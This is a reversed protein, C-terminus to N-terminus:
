SSLTFIQPAPKNPVLPPARALQNPPVLQSASAPGEGGGLLRLETPPARPTIPQTQTIDSLIPYPHPQALGM